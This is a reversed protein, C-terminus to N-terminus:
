TLAPWLYANSHPGPFSAKCSSNARASCSQEGSDYRRWLFRM